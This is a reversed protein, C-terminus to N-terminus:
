WSAWSRRFVHPREVFSFDSSNGVNVKGQKQKQLSPNKVFNLVSFHESWVIIKVYRVTVCSQSLAEGYWNLQLIHPFKLNKNKFNTKIKNRSQM